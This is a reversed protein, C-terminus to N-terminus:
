PKVLAAITWVALYPLVVSAIQRLSRRHDVQLYPALEQKWSARSPLDMSAGGRRECATWTTDPLAIRKPTREATLVPDRANLAPVTAARPRGGAIRVHPRSLSFSSDVSSGGLRAPS